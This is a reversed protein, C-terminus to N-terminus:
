LHKVYNVYAKDMAEQASLVAFFRDAKTTKGRYTDSVTTNYGAINAYQTKRRVVITIKHDNVTVTKQRRLTPAVNAFGM